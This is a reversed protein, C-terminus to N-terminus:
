LTLESITFCAVKFWLTGPDSICLRANALQQHTTHKAKLTAKKDMMRFMRKKATRFTRYHQGFHRRVM